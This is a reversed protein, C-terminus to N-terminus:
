KKKQLDNIPHSFPNTGLMIFERTYYTARYGRGTLHRGPATRLTVRLSEGESLFVGDSLLGSLQLPSLPPSEVGLKVELSAWEPDMDNDQFELWV